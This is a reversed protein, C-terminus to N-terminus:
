IRAALSMLKKYPQHAGDANQIGVVAVKISKGIAKGLSRKTFEFFLPVGESYALDIIEQLKEDIAGYQDLNNAMVVMKVKHSRIGRAVERLGMVLRRRAKANKEEMARKQLRMLEGLMEVLLPKVREDNVLKAYERPGEASPVKPVRKCEAFREPILKDGSYLPAPDDTRPKKLAAADDNEVPKRKDGSSETPDGNEQESSMPADTGVDQSSNKLIPIRSASIIQGGIVMGEFAVVAQEAIAQSGAYLVRVVGGSEKRIVDVELVDGVKAALNKVDNLSEELCDEDDLDDETLLNNLYVYNGDDCENDAVRALVTMGGLCLGNLENLANQAVSLGSAYTVKVVRGEVTIDSVEGHRGTLEHLDSLTENLCDEDELDDETLVNELLITSPLTSVSALDLNEPVSVSMPEGSVMTARLRDAINRALGMNAEYIIEINGDKKDSARLNLVKGFQDAIKRLDALSESMCDDDEYDDDTLVKNLVITTPGSLVHEAPAEDDNQISEAFLVKESWAKTNSEDGGVSEDIPVVSLIQGGIVLGDWCAKAASADSVTKFKVFAPYNESRDLNRPIFKEEVEGVKMAMGGLNEIIEDYEDDDELEDKNTYHYVCISRSEAIALSGQSTSSSDQKTSPAEEPHLERWKKLREQLVKKKLATFKKKRPAVRQRGKKQYINRDQMLRLLQHEDGDGMRNEMGTPKFFMAASMRASTVSKEKSNDKKGAEKKPSVKKQQKGLQADGRKLGKPTVTPKPMKAGWAVAKPLKNQEAPAAGLAPFDKNSSVQLRLAVQSQSQAPQPSQTSQKNTGKGAGKKKPASIMDGISMTALKPKPKKSKKPQTNQPQTVKVPPENQVPRKAIVIPKKSKSKNTAQATSSPKNQHTPPRPAPPITKKPNSAITTWSPSENQKPTSYKSSSASAPTQLSQATNDNSKPDIDDKSSPAPPTKKLSQATTWAQQQKEPQQKGWPRSVQSNSNERNQQTLQPEKRAVSSDKGWATKVPAGHSNNTTAAGWATPKPTNGSSNGELQPKTSGPQSKKKMADAYSLTM